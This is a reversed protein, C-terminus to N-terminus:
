GAAPEAAPLPEPQEVGRPYRRGNLMVGLWTNRVWADYTWVLIPVAGAIGLVFKVWPTLPAFMM